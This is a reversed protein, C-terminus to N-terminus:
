LFITVCRCVPIMFYHRSHAGDIRKRREREALCQELLTDQSSLLEDLIDNVLIGADWEDILNTIDSDNDRVKAQKITRKM